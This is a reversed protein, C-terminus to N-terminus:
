SLLLLEVCAYCHSIHGQLSLWQEFATHISWRLWHVSLSFRQMQYDIALNLLCSGKLHADLHIGVCCDWKCEEDDSMKGPITTGQELKARFDGSLASDCPWSKWM